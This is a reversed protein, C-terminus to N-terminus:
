VENILKSIKLVEARKLEPYIPISMIENKLKSSVPFDEYVHGRNKYCTLFPLPTPYHVAHSIKADDLTKQVESRNQVRIVYLHFVHISNERITPIIVKSNDLYEDYWIAVQQRSVTWQDLYPLKVRLIAAQITDMRSNRGEIFHVHKQDLQGHRSLMRCKDALDADNCVMAGADGYAGLNKGPFFSYAAGNGFSGAKSGNYEAGHAQACDEIVKLKYKKAIELITDMECMQGFLHVPIIAKTFKTISDEIKVEDITYNNLNIDVFVAKAGVSNVAESTSIWSIAPVIVEDGYGIDLAKLLIELADTGNGCTICHKVGLFAAFEEEFLEVEAGGIFSTDDIVRKISSDIQDKITDYQAKLDVFPIM